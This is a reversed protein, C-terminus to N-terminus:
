KIILFLWIATWISLLLLFFLEWNFINNTTLMDLVSEHKIKKYIKTAAYCLLTAIMVFLTLLM